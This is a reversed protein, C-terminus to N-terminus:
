RICCSIGGTKSGPPLLWGMGMKLLRQGKYQRDMEQYLFQRLVECKAVIINMM